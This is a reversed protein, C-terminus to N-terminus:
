IVQALELRFRDREDPGSDEHIVPIADLEVEEHGPPRAVRRLAVQALESAPEMNELM